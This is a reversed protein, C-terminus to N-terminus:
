GPARGRGLALDAPRSQPPQERVERHNAVRKKCRRPPATRDLGIRLDPVAASPTKTDTTGPFETEEDHRRGRM